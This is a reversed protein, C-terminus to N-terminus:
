VSLIWRHQTYIWLDVIRKVIEEVLANINLNDILCRKRLSFQEREDVDTHDCSLIFLAAKSIETVLYPDDTYHTPNEAKLQSQVKDRFSPNLGQLFHVSKKRDTLHKKKKLYTAMTLFVRSYERFDEGDKIKVTAQKEVLMQLNTISYKREGSSGPYLKFLEKKFQDWNDTKVSKQMEWLERINPAYCVAWEIQQKASLGCSQAIQKVDDM